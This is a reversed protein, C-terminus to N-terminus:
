RYAISAAMIPKGIKVSNEVIFSSNYRTDPTGGMYFGGGHIWVAMPLSVNEYGAPRVINLYLCDESQQYGVQDGGYGFCEQFWHTLM